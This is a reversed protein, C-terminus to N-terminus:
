KESENLKILVPNINTWEVKEKSKRSNSYNEAFNEM